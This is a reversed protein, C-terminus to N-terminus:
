PKVVHGPAVLAIENSMNLFRIADRLSAFRRPPIDKDRSMYNVFYVRPNKWSAGRVVVSLAYPWQSGLLARMPFRWALPVHPDDNGCSM